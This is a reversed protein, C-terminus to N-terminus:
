PRLTFSLPGTLMSPATASAATPAARGADRRQSRRRGDRRRADDGAWTTSNYSRRARRTPSSALRAAHLARAPQRHGLRHEDAGVHLGAPERRLTPRTSTPPTRAARCARPLRQRDAGTRLNRIRVHARRQRQDPRRRRRRLRRPTTGLEASVISRTSSSCGAARRAARRTASACSTPAAARPPHVRDRRAPDDPRARRADALQAQRGQAESGTAVNLRYIDGDRPHLRRVDRGLPEHRPRHRVPGGARQPSPSRRRRAAAVSKVLSYTSPPRTSSRGCSSGAGVAAVRTPPSSPARPHHPAAWPSRRPCSRRPRQRAAATFSTRLISM